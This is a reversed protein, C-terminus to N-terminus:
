FASKLGKPPLVTFHKLFSFPPWRIVLLTHPQDPLGLGLASAPKGALFAGALAVRIAKVVRGPASIPLRVVSPSHHVM